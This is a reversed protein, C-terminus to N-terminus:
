DFNRWGEPSSSPERREFQLSPAPAQRALSLVCSQIKRQPTLLSPIGAALSLIDATPAFFEQQTVLRGLLNAGGRQHHIKSHLKKVSLKLTAMNIRESYRLIPRPVINPTRSM